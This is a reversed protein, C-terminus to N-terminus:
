QSAQELIGSGYPTVLEALLPLHDSARRTEPINVATVSLSAAPGRVWIRDLAFLPRRTPFTRPAPTKPFHRRLRRLPRGWLLWENFDGMLAVWTPNTEGPEDLLEGLRTAQERRELPSLGLHTALVRLSAPKEKDKRGAHQGGKPGDRHLGPLTCDLDIVGRPERNTVSLDLRRSKTIPLRTLVANGYDGSSRHMTTGHIATWDRGECLYDLLGPDHSFREVEQLAVVDADLTRLVSRIRAPQYSGDTGICRHINWSALKLM